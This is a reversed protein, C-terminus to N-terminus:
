TQAPDRGKSEDALGALAAQFGRPNQEMMPMEFQTAHPAFLIIKRLSFRDLATSKQNMVEAM